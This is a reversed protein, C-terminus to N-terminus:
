TVPWPLRLAYARATRLLRYDADAARLDAMVLSKAVLSMMAAVPRRATLSSWCPVSLVYGPKGCPIAVTWASMKLASM